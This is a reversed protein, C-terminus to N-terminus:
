KHELEKGIRNGVVGGAAAGAVTGVTSGGTLSSGVIGGVVAGSVTGIEQRTPNSNCGMVVVTAAILLAISSKTNMVQDKNTSARNRAWGHKRLSRAMVYFM